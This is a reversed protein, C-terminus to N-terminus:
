GLRKRYFTPPSGGRGFSLRRRTAGSRSGVVGRGWSTPDTRRDARWAAAARQLRAPPAAPGDRGALARRDRRSRLGAGTQARVSATHLHSRRPPPARRRLGRPAASAQPAAPHRAPLQLLRTHARHAEAGDADRYRRRYRRGTGRSRGDRERRELPTLQRAQAQAPAATPGGARASRASRRQTPGPARGPSRSREGVCATRGKPGSASLPM